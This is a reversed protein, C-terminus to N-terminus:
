AHRVWEEVTLFAPLSIEVVSYLKDTVSRDDDPSWCFTGEANLDVAGEVFPGVPDMPTTVNENNRRTFLVLHTVLAVLTTLTNMLVIRLVRQRFSGSPTCFRDHVVLVHPRVRAGVGGDFVKPPTSALKPP